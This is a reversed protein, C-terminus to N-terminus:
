SGQSGRARMEAPENSPKTPMDTEKPAKPDNEKGAAKSGTVPTGVAPTAIAPLQSASATLASQAFIVAGLTSLGACVWCATNVLTNSKDVSALVRACHRKEFLDEIREDGQEVGRVKDFVVAAFHGVVHFKRAWRVAWLRDESLSRVQDCFEKCSGQATALTIAEGACSNEEAFKMLTVKKPTIFTALQANYNLRCLPIDAIGLCIAAMVMNMMRKSGTRTTQRPPNVLYTNNKFLAQLRLVIIWLLLGCLAMWFHMAQYFIDRKKADELGPQRLLEMPNQRASELKAEAQSWNSYSIYLLLATWAVICSSVSVNPSEGKDTQVQFACANLISTALDITFKFGSLFMVVLICGLPVFFYAFLKGTFDM